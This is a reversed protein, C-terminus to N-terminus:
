CFVGSFVGPLRPLVCDGVAGCSAFSFFSIKYLFSFVDPTNPHVIEVVNGDDSLLSQFRPNERPIARQDRNKANRFYSHLTKLV